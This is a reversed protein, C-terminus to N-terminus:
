PGAIEFRYGIEELDKRYGMWYLKEVLADDVLANKSHPSESAAKNLLELLSPRHKTGVSKDTRNVYDSAPKTPDKFQDSKRNATKLRYIKLEPKVTGQSIDKDMTENTPKYHSTIMDSLDIPTGVKENELIQRHPLAAEIQHEANSQTKSPEQGYRKLREHSAAQEDNPEKDRDVDHVAAEDILIKESGSFVNDAISDSQLKETPQQM